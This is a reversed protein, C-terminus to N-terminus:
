NKIWDFEIMQQHIAQHLKIGYNIFEVAHGDEFRKLRPIKLVKDFEVTIDIDTEIYGTVHREYKYYRLTNENEFQVTMDLEKFLESPKTTAKNINLYPNYKSDIIDFSKGNEDYFNFMVSNFVGDFGQLKIYTFSQGIEIDTVEYSKCHVLGKKRAEVTDNPFGNEDLYMGYIKETVKM